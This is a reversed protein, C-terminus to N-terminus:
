RENMFFPPRMGITIDKPHFLREVLPRVILVNM